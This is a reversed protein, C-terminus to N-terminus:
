VHARGIQADRGVTAPSCRRPRAKAPLRALEAAIERISKHAMLGKAVVARRAEVAGKGRRGNGGGGVASKPKVGGVKKGGGLAVGSRKGVDM